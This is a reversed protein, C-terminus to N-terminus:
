CQFLAPGLAPILQPEARNDQRFSNELEAPTRRMGQNTLQVCRPSFFDILVPAACSMITNACIDKRIRSRDPVDM